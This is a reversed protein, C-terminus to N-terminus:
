NLWLTPSHLTASVAVQLQNGERLLREALGYSQLMGGNADPRLRARSFQGAPSRPYSATHWRGSWCCGEQAQCDFPM